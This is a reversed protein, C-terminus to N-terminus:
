VGVRGSCCGEKGRREDWFWELNSDSIYLAQAAETTSKDDLYYYRILKGLRENQRELQLLAEEVVQLVLLRPDTSDRSQLDLVSRLRRLVAPNVTIDYWGKLLELIAERLPKPFQKSM